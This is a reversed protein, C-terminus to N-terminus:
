RSQTNDILAFVLVGVASMPVVIILVFFHTLRSRLSMIRLAAKVADAAKLRDLLGAPEFWSSGGGVPFRGARGVVSRRV